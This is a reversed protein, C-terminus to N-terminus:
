KCRLLVTYINSFILDLAAGYRFPVSMTVNQIEAKNIQLKLLEVSAKCPFECYASTAMTVATHRQTDSSSILPLITSIQYLDQLRLVSSSPRSLWLRFTRPSLTELKVSRLRPSQEARAHQSTSAWVTYTIPTIMLYEIMNHSLFIM